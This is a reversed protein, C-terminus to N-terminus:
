VPYPKGEEVAVMEINLDKIYAAAPKPKDSHVIFIKKPEIQSVLEKLEHPCLHISAHVQYVPTGCLELWNLLKDYNIEAEENFPEGHSLIYLSGPKPQITVMENMDYFSAALIVEGQHLNIYNSGTVRGPYQRKL